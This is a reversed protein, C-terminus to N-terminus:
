PWPSARASAGDSRGTLSNLSPVEQILFGGKGGPGADKGNKWSPALIQCSETRIELFTLHLIRYGSSSGWTSGSFAKPLGLVCVRSRM